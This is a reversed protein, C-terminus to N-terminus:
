LQKIIKKTIENRGTRIKLLYTGSAFESFDITETFNDNQNSFTQTGVIKGDISVIQIEVNSPKSLQTSITVTYTAPNPYVKFDTIADEVNEVTLM